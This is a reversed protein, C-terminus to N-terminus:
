KKVVISQQLLEDTQIQVFYTGATLSTLNLVVQNFGEFVDTTNQLVVRGLQDLVRVTASVNTHHQFQINVESSTPNPSIQIASVTTKALGVARPSVRNVTVFTTSLDFCENSLAVQLANDGLAATLQGTYSLGWVLCVGTGAGEFNVMNAPPLGIIVGAEDTVVYRFRSLTADTSAFAVIDDNGDGAITTIEREGAVTSVNGGNPVFRNITIVDESLAFDGDSLAVNLANQGVQATLNGTYSLGWVLCIGEGAGELNAQATPPLGLINGENDTIVYAFAAGVTANSSVFRVIDDKADGPCTYRVTNGDPMAINGGSLENLRNVTVFNDSIEYCGTSLAFNGITGGLLYRLEGTYSVGWVRCVGEGADEFNVMNSPPTGIIKNNDDTVIYAFDADSESVHSFMVVDAIGDGARTTISTMGGATAVTGGDVDTRTVTIFNDSLDFCDDTLAVAAANDGIQATVNGTYSLGWVRCVGPFIGEFNLSNTPPLGLINNQDDTIVYRYQANSTSNNTFIVVDNFGDTTCVTRETRGSPMAVMGGDPTARVIKVATRSIAYCGDSFRTSFINQGLQAVVNGTFNFGWVYCIGEGAGEFDITNTPPLGIINFADDTAVYRFNATSNAGENIFQFADPTGDGPCTYVTNEGNATTITTVACSQANLIVGGNISVLLFLISKLVNFRNM